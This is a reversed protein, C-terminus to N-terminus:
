TSVGHLLKKLGTNKGFNRNATFHRQRKQQLSFVLTNINNLTPVTNHKRPWTRIQKRGVVQSLWFIVRTHVLAYVHAGLVSNHHVRYYPSCPLLANRVLFEATRYHTLIRHTRNPGPMARALCGSRPNGGGAAGVRMPPTRPFTSRRLLVHIKKRRTNKKKLASGGSFKKEM